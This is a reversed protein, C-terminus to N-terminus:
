ASGGSGGEGRARVGPAGGQETSLGRSHEGRSLLWEEEIDSLDHGAANFQSLGRLFDFAGYIGLDDINPLEERIRSHDALEELVEVFRYLPIMAMGGSAAIVPLGCLEPPLSVVGTSRQRVDEYWEHVLSRMTDAAPSTSAVVGAVGVSSQFMFVHPLGSQGRAIRGLASTAHREQAAANERALLPPSSVHEVESM